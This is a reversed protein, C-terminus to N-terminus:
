NSGYVTAFVELRTEDDSIGYGNVRAIAQGIKGSYFCVEADDLVGAGVLEDLILGTFVSETYDNEGTVGSTDLERSAARESVEAHLPLAYAGLERTFTM